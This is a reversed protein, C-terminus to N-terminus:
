CKERCKAPNFCNKGILTITGSAPGSYLCFHLSDRYIGPLAKLQSLSIESVLHQAGSKDYRIKSSGLERLFISKTREDRGAVFFLDAKKAKSQKNKSM